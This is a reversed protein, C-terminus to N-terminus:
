KPIKYLTGWNYKFEIGPDIRRGKLGEGLSFCFLVFIFLLFEVLYLEHQGIKM